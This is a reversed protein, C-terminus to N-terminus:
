EIGLSAVQLSGADPALVELTVADAGAPLELTATTWMALGHTLVFPPLDEVLLEPIALELETSTGDDASLRLRVPERLREDAFDPVVRLRVVEGAEAEVPLTLSAGAEDWSLAITQPLGVLGPLEPRHCLETGPNSFPTYYGIPCFTASFGDLELQSPVQPGAGPVPAVPEDAPVVGLLVGPPPAPESFVEAAWGVGDGDGLVAHALEPVTEALLAQQDEASIRNGEDCSPFDVPFPELALLTNTFNHNAGELLVLAAPTRRPELLAETLFRAGVLGTDGDCESVVVAAPVDVLPLAAAVNLAPQLLVVGAV